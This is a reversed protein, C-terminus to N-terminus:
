RTVTSPAAPTPLDRSARSNTAPTRLSARTTPPRHRGYPSPMVNQGIASITLSAQPIVAVSERLAARDFIPAARDPASSASSIASRTAATEPKVSVDAPMCSVNQAIRRNRSDICRSSGITTINSSTWHASGM